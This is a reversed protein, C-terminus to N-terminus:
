NFASSGASHDIAHYELVVVVVFFGMLSEQQRFITLAKTQKMVELQTYKIMKLVHGQASLM